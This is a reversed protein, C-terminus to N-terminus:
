WTRGYRGKALILEDDHELLEKLREGTETNIVVTGLPVEVISTRVMQGQVQKSVELAEM